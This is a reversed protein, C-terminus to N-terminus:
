KLLHQSTTPFAEKSPFRSHFLLSQFNFAATKNKKPKKQSQGRSIQSHVHCNFDTIPYFPVLHHISDFKNLVDAASSGM